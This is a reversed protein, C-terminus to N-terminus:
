WILYKYYRSRSLCAWFGKWIGDDITRTQFNFGGKDRWYKQKLEKRDSLSKTEDASSPDDIQFDHLSKARESVAVLMFTRMVSTFGAVINTQLGTRETQPVILNAITSKSRMEKSIQKEFDDTLIRGLENRKRAFRGRKDIHYASHLTNM